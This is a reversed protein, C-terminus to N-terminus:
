DVSRPVIPPKRYSDIQNRRIEMDDFLIADPVIVSVPAPLRTNHVTERDSVAIIKRFIQADVHSIEASRILQESGDAINVRYLDLPTSGGDATQRVIYAYQCGEEQARTLLEKRLDASPKKRTDDMRVVGARTASNLGTGYLSHGNSRAIKETPVRDNLMTKLVGNAILTLRELPIVGQADVPAYGTLSRGNYTKTGTLDEVSIEKATIRKDIMKEMGNGGYAYGSPSLPKRVAILSNEGSFFASYFTEMVAQGEFLVPGAYSEGILPAEKRALVKQALERCEAKLTELDPLEDSSAFIHDVADSIWEGDATLAGANAQLLFFTRPLSYSTKETNYFYIVSSVAQLSVSSAVLEKFASFATSAECVYRECRAKDIDAKKGPLDALQVTPTRDWDPLELSAPPINLQKIASIKQEYTEAARKYIADLDRWVTYRIGDESNEICPSGDYNDM